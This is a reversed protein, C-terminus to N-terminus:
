SAYLEPMTEKKTKKGESGQPLMTKLSTFLSSSRTQEKVKNLVKVLLWNYFTPPSAYFLM